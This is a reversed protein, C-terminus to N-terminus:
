LSFAVVNFSPVRCLHYLWDRPGALRKAGATTFGPRRPMLYLFAGVM